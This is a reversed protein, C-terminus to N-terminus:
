RRRALFNLALFAALLGTFLVISVIPMIPWDSDTQFPRLFDGSATTRAFYLDGAGTRPKAYPKFGKKGDTGGVVGATLASVNSSSSSAPFSSTSLSSYSSFSFSSSSSFSSFARASSSFSSVISSSYSSGSSENASNKMICSVTARVSAGDSLKVVQLSRNLTCSMGNNVIYSLTIQKSEGPALDTFCVVESGSQSCGTSSRGTDFVANAPIPGHTISVGTVPASGTNRVTVTYETRRQVSSFGAGSSGMSGSFVQSSSSSSSVSSFYTNQSSSSSISSSSSRSSPSWRGFGLGSDLSSSSNGTSCDCSSSSSSFSQSTSVSFGGPSGSPGSGRCGILPEICPAEPLM